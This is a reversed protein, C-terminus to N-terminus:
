LVRRTFVPSPAMRTSTGCTRPRSSKALRSQGSILCAEGANSFITMSIYARPSEVRSM